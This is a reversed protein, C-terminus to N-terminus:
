RPCGNCVWSCPEWRGWGEGHQPRGRRAVLVGGGSATGRSSSAAGAGTGAAPRAGAPRQKTLVGPGRRRLSLGLFEGATGFIRDAEARRGRPRELGNTENGCGCAPSLKRNEGPGPAPLLFPLVIPAPQSPSPPCPPCPPCPSWARPAQCPAANPNEKTAGPPRLLPTPAGSRGAHPSAPSQPTLQSQLHTEKGQRAKKKKKLQQLDLWLCSELAGGKCGLPYCCQQPTLVSTVGPTPVCLTPGPSPAAGRSTPPAPPPGQGGRPSLAM